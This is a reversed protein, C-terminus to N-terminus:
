IDTDKLLVIILTEYPKVAAISDIADNIPVSECATSISFLATLIAQNVLDEELRVM